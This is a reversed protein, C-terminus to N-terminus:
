HVFPSVMRIPDFVMGGLTELVPPIRFQVTLATCNIAMDFAVAGAQAQLPGPPKVAEM